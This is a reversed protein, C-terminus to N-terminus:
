WEDLAQLKQLIEAETGIFFYVAGDVIAYVVPRNGAQKALSYGLAVTEFTTRGDMNRGESCSETSLKEADATRGTFADNLKQSFTWDLM